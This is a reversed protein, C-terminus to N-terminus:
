IKNQSSLMQHHRLIVFDSVVDMVGFNGAVGGHGEEARQDPGVLEEGVAQAGPEQPLEGQPQETQLPM